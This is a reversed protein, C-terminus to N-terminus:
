KSRELFGDVIRHGGNESRPTDPPVFFTCVFEVWAGEIHTDPFLYKVLDSSEGIHSEPFINVETIFNFLTAIIATQEVFVPYVVFAAIGEPCEELLYEIGSDGTDMKGSSM